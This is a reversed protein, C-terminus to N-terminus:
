RKAPTNESNASFIRVACARQLEPSAARLIVRGPVGSEAILWYAFGGALGGGFCCFVFFPGAGIPGELGGFIKLAAFANLGGALAFRPMNHWRHCAALAVTALFGPLAAPFTIFFGGALMAPWDRLLAHFSGLAGNDPLLSPLVIHAVTVATAVAVATCYGAAVVLTKCALLAFLTQGDRYTREVM